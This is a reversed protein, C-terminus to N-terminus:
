RTTSGGVSVSGNIGGLLRKDSTFTGNRDAKRKYIIAVIIVTVLIGVLIGIILGM